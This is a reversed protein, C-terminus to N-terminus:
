EQAEGNMLAMLWTVSHAVQFRKGDAMLVTSASDGLYSEKIEVIYDTNLLVTYTEVRSTDAPSGNIKKVKIFM